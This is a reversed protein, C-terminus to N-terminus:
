TFVSGDRIGRQQHIKAAILIDALVFEHNACLAVPDVAIRSLGRRFDALHQKLPLDGGRDILNATQTGLYVLPNSVISRPRLPFTASTAAALWPSPFAHAAARAASPALTAIM